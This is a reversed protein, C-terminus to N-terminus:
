IMLNCGRIDSNDFRGLVEFFGDNHVKGLDKTEIFCCSDINALDIINIGGTKGFTLYSFPDNIDRILIKCWGPFSFNGDEGYAQSFLETMGYESHIVQKGFSTNLAHHLEDRTLEKRRGKMGGTEMVMFNELKGNGKEALDLLAYSVGILIRQTQKKEFIRKLQIDTDHRLFASDPAGKRIFFDVMSILSSHQQELYSPLLALFEYNKLSGYKKEFHTQCISHYFAEDRVFHKSRVQGSTGSSQFIVTEKWKGTIIKESKFFEIPLFPIENIRTVNSPNKHLNHCFEQYVPNHQWQYSFAQLAKKSFTREEIFFVNSKFKELDFM